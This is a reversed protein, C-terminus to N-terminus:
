EQYGLECSLELAADKVLKAYDPLNDYNIRIAPGSIGLMAVTIGADNYVPAALCRVGPENEEDDLAYGANRIELLHAKLDEIDTITRPTVRPLDQPLPYDGFAILGKGLATNHLHILRGSTGAVRLLSTEPQVDDTVQVKGASYVGIHACEGTGYALRHIYPKAKERLSYRNVLQWALSHFHKGIIYRRSHKEQQVYGFGEMTKMLRSVSSKDIGIKEALESVGQAEGAEAIMNLIQLGRSLSQVERMPYISMQQDIVLLKIIKLHKPLNQQCLHFM